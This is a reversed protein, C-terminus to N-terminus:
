FFNMEFTQQNVLEFWFKLYSSVLKIISCIGYIYGNNKSNLIKFTNRM